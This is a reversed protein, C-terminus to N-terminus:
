SWVTAASARTLRRLASRIGPLDPGREEVVVLVNDVKAIEDDGVAARVSARAGLAM